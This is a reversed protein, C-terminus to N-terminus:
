VRCFAQSDGAKVTSPVGQAFHLDLSYSSFIHILLTAVATQIQIRGGPDAVDEM